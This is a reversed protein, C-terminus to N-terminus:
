GLFMWVIFGIVAISIGSFIGIQLRLQQKRRKRKLKELEEFNAQGKREAKREGFYPSNGMTTRNGLMSTNQKFSDKGARSFGLGGTM